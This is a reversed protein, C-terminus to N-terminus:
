LRQMRTIEENTGLVILVTNESIKEDAGPHINLVGQERVSLITVGYKARIDLAGITKGIWGEPPNLEAIGYEDSLGIFDRVNAFSLSRALRKAMESEPIVVRDAGIKELARKHISNSAKCIVYPVGLEKINLTILISAALDEGIAIVACDCNQIGLSRLVAIDRADAVAAHTVHESIDQINASNIDIALVDDGYAQIDRAIAEGFHGLGVVVFTKMGGVEGMLVLNAM